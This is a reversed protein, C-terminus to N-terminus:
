THLEYTGTTGDDFEDMGNDVGAGVIDAVVAVDTLRLDVAVVSTFVEGMDAVGMGDIIGVEAVDM